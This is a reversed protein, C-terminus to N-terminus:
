GPPKFPKGKKKNQLLAVHLDPLWSYVGIVREGKYNLYTDSGSPHEDVATDAGKTRIYTEPIIYSSDRLGTLLRHNSGVLYTEGTEGLGARELMIENLSQLSARGALVGELKGDVYVPASTVVTMKGLSLSYSPQQIYPEKLGELFYDYISHKENEHGANTSILIRGSSDMLFLEDFLGMSEASWEFRSLLSDYAARYKETGIEAQNLVLIDSLANEDSVVIELNVSLWNVWSKIEAQKLTVVSELQGIERQASSRTGLVV